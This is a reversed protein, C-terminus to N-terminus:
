HDSRPVDKAEIPYLACGVPGIGHEEADEHSRGERQVEHLYIAEYPTPHENLINM